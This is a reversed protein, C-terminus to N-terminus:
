GRRGRLGGLWRRLRLVLLLPTVIGGLAERVAQCAERAADDDAGHHSLNLAVMGALLLMHLEAQPLRRADAVARTAILRLRETAEQQSAYHSVYSPNGTLRDDAYDVVSELLWHLAAIWPFYADSVASAEAATARADSATALLAFIGLPSGAAAALEWWRLASTSWEQRTSWHEFESPGTTRGVHNLTQAEGARTAAVVLWRQVVRWRPLQQLGTRCEHVLTALYQSADSAPHHALYEEVKADPEFAAVLARHLQRNNAEPDDVDDEALADLVDFLLEFAVCTRTTTSLAGRAALVAFAAAGEASMQEDALKDLAHHRLRSDPIAAARAACARVQRRATPFAVLWYRAM